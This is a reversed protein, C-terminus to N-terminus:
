TDREIDMYGDINGAIWKGMWQRDLSGLNM